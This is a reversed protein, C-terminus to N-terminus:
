WLPTESSPWQWHLCLWYDTFSGLNEFINISITNNFESSEVVFYKWDSEDVNDYNNLFTSNFWFTKIMFHCSQKEVKKWSGAYISLLWHGLDFSIKFSFTLTCKANEIFRFFRLKETQLRRKTFIKRTDKAKERQNHYYQRLNGNRPSKKWYEMRISVTVWGRHRRNRIDRFM